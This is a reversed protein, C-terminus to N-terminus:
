RFLEDLPSANPNNEPAAPPVDEVQLPGIPSDDAAKPPGGVPEGDLPSVVPEQPRATRGDDGTVAAEVAFVDEPSPGLDGPEVATVVSVAPVLKM